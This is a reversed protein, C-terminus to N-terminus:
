GDNGATTALMVPAGAMEGPGVEAEEALVEAHAAGLCEV